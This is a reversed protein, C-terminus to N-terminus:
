KLNTIFSSRMALSVPTVPETFSPVEKKLEFM